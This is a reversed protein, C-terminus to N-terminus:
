IGEMINESVSLKKTGCFDNQWEWRKVYRVFWEARKLWGIIAMFNTLDEKRGTNTYIGKDVIKSNADLINKEIRDFLIEETFVNEKRIKENDFKIVMKMM